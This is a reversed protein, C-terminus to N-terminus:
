GSTRARCCRDPLPAAATHTWSRCLAGQLMRATAKGGPVCLNLRQESKSVIADAYDSCNYGCQSCDQQAMAAMMRRQLPRGEAGADHTRAAGYGSRAM